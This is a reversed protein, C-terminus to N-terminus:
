SKQEKGQRKRNNEQAEIVLERIRQDNDASQRSRMEEFEAFGVEAHSRDAYAHDNVVTGYQDVTRYTAFALGDVVVYVEEMRYQRM